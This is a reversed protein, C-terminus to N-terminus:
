SNRCTLHVGQTRFITQNVLLHHATAECSANPTRRVLRVAAPITIHCIHLRLGLGAGVKLINRVASVEANASHARLFDKVGTKGKAISEEQSRRISDEDEAHVTVIANCEKAAKFVSALDTKNSSNFTELAKNLYLKFSIAGQQVM